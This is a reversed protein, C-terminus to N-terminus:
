PHLQKWIARAQSFIVEGTEKWDVVDNITEQAVFKRERLTGHDPDPTQPMLEDVECYYRLQYFNNSGKKTIINEGNVFVVKQGGLLKINKLTVDVEEVFERRLTEEATEGEEVTGGPLSWDHDKDKRQVLIEGKDNFCVGYCQTFPDYRSLDDGEIWIFKVINGSSPDEWTTTPFNNEDM